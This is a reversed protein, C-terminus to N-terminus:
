FGAEMYAAVRIGSASAFDQLASKYQTWSGDALGYGLSHSFAISRPRPDMQNIRNLCEKFYIMRHAQTDENSHYGHATGIQAFLAIIRGRVVISGPENFTDHGRESYVDSSPFRAFIKGTFGKVAGNNKERAALEAVSSCICRHAIYDEKAELMDGIKEEFLPQPQSLLSARHFSFGIYQDCGPRLLVRKIAESKFIIIWLCRRHSPGIPLGALVHLRKQEQLQRM